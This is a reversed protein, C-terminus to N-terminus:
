QQSKLKEHYKKKGGAEISRDKQFYIEAFSQSKNMM